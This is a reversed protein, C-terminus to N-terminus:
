IGVSLDESLCSSSFIKIIKETALILASTEDHKGDPDNSDITAGNRLLRLVIDVYRERVAVELATGHSAGKELLAQVIDVYGEGVAAELASRNRRDEVNPGASTALLLRVINGNDLVAAEYLATHTEERRTNPDAGNRVLLRVVEINGGRAAPNM